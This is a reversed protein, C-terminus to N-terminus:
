AAKKFGLSVFDFDRGGPIINESFGPTRDVISYRERSHDGLHGNASDIFDLVFCVNPGTKKARLGRGIRQRLAVEAKGGGALIVCGVAPVDVGVDLITSGILVDLEGTALKNLEAQRADQKSDGYIFSVRLGVATMMEELIKGHQKHAVLVMTPMNVIRKMRVAERVITENRWLNYVIGMKYARQYPTGRRLTARLKPEYKALRDTDAIYKAEIYKFKPCALVGADILQKESVRIGVPGSVGLLRMNAEAGSRMFPTATLALRYHANKCLRMIDYFQGASAEHAEELIVLEFKGLLAVVKQRMILHKQKKAKEWTPDPERLKAAITQVTAVNIYRSPKFTGEGMVGVRSDALDPEGNAIRCRIAEEFNKKMQWMLVGRTTLFLSPRKIRAVAKNCIMSKGGGTAVQAIMGGLRLLANVSEDQYSYMPNVPFNNVVPNAPGKPAPLPKAIVQVQYGMGSLKQQVPITFGAPFVGTTWEFFTSKGDWAGTKFSKSHEAGEVQYSLLAQVVKKVEQDSTILKANVANRAIQILKSM